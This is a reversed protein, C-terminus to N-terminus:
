NVRSRIKQELKFYGVGIISCVIASVIFKVPQLLTSISIRKILIGFWLMQVIYIHYSAKGLRVLLNGVKEIFRYNGIKESIRNENAILTAVVPVVYFATPAASRFWTDYRFIVHPQYGIYIVLIIYIIGIAICKLMNKWPIEGNKYFKYLMIGGYIFIIYRFILLRYVARPLNILYTILEYICQFAFVIVFGILWAYPKNEKDNMMLGCFWKIVPFIILLELMLILYYSGPYDYGGSVLWVVPNEPIGIIILEIIYAPIFPLILRLGKRKLNKFTYWKGNREYSSAYVFGTMTM